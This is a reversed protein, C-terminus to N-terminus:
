QGSRTEMLISVYDALTQVTRFPNEQGSAANEDLLTLDVGFENSIREETLVILNVLGLSDLPGGDGFLRSDSAVRLQQAPPLQRNLEEIAARVQAIISASDVM